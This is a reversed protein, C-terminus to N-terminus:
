HVEEIPEKAYIIQKTITLLQLLLCSSSAIKFRKEKEKQTLVCM